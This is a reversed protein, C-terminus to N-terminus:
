IFCASSSFILFFNHSDSFLKAWCKIERAVVFIKEQLLNHGFHSFDPRLRM